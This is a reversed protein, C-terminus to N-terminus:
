EASLLDKLLCGLRQLMEQAEWIWGVATRKHGQVVISVEATSMALSVKRNKSHGHM